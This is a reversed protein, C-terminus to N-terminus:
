TGRKYFQPLYEQENELVRKFFNRAKTYTGVLPNAMLAALALGSDGSIAAEITLEEYAKVSQVLGRVTLPMSGCPLAEVRDRYFRAPVEVCVHPPLDPLAQANKVDAIVVDGRDGVISEIVQIVPLYYQAGGKAALIEEAEKTYGDNAYILALREEAAIDKQGKSKQRRRDEELVHEPYYFYRLYWNPIMKLTQLWEPAILPEVLEYRYLPSRRDHARDLLRKLMEEGNLYVGRVWSLHNLGFYDLRLSTEHVGLIKALASTLNSPINCFGVTRVRTHKLLSETVIGAPNTLNLLWAKPALREIEAAIRLVVPITRLACVFGGPGTTENGVMGLTMPLTEDRVRAELGGVRIQLIVFDAGEIAESYHQTTRIAFRPTASALLRDCVRAILNLKQENQDMLMVEGVDLHTQPSILRAILEPTYSSGGGIVTIKLGM